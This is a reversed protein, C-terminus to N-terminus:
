MSECDTSSGQAYVTAPLGKSVYRKGELVARIAKLLEKAAHAKVVYGSAGLRIAESVIDASCEQSLFIIKCAPSAKLILRAAEMGNLKPLGVDLIILGPRLEEAKQVAEIGDAAYAIVLLAPEDQLVSSAWGRFPPFDDVVLIRTVGDVHNFGRANRM